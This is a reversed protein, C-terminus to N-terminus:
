ILTLLNHLFLSFSLLDGNEKIMTEASFGKFEYYTQSRLELLLNLLLMLTYCTIRRNFLTFITNHWSIHAANAETFYFTFNEMKFSVVRKFRMWRRASNLQLM